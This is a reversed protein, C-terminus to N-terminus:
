DESWNQKACTNDSHSLNENQGWGPLESNCNCLLYTSVPTPESETHRELVSLSSSHKSIDPTLRSKDTSHGDTVMPQETMKLSHKGGGRGLSNMNAPLLVCRQPLSWVQSKKQWLIGQSNVLNGGTQIFLIIMINSEGTLVEWEYRLLLCRQFNLALEQQRRNSIQIDSPLLHAVSALFM